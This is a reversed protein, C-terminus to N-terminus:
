NARRCGFLYCNPPLAGGAGILQTVADCLMEYRVLFETGTRRGARPGLRDLVKPRSTEGDSGAARTDEAAIGHPMRPQRRRARAVSAPCTGNHYAHARAAMAGPCRCAPEQAGCRLLTRHEFHSRQAARHQESRNRRADARSRLFAGNRVEHGGIEPPLGSGEEVELRNRPLDRWHAGIRARPAQAGVALGHTLAQGIGLIGIQLRPGGRPHSHMVIQHAVAMTGEVRLGAAPGPAYRALQQEHGLGHIEDLGRSLDPDDPLPVFLNATDIK